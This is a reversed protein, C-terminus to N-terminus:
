LAAAADAPLGDLAHDVEEVFVADRADRALARNARRAIQHRQCVQRKPQHALPQHPVVLLRLGELGGHLDDLRLAADRDLQLHLLPERQDVARLEQGGKGALTEDAGFARPGGAAEDGRERHLRELALLVREVREDVLVAKM